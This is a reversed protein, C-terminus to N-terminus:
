EIYMTTVRFLFSIVLSWFILVNFTYFSCLPLVFFFSILNVKSLLTSIFILIFYIFRHSFYFSNHKEHLFLQCHLRLQSENQYRSAILCLWTGVWSLFSLLGLIIMADCTHQAYRLYSFLLFFVNSFHKKIDFLFSLFSYLCHTYFFNIAFVFRFVKRWLQFTNESSFLM